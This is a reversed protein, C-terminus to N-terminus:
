KHDKLEIEIFKQATLKISKSIAFYFISYGVLNILNMELLVNYKHANLYKTLIYYPLTISFLFLVGSAILFKQSNFFSKISDDFLTDILISISLFIMLGAETLCITEYNTIIFNLDDFLGMVLIILSTIAISKVILKISRAKIENFFFLLLTFYESIVYLSLSADRYFNVSAKYEKFSLMNIVVSQILGITCTIAFVKIYGIKNYNSILLYLCYILSIIFILNTLLILIFLAM